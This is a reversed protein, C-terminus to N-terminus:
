EKYKTNVCIRDPTYWWQKVSHTLISPYIINIYFVHIIYLTCSQASYRRLVMYSYINFVWHQNPLENKNNKIGKCLFLSHGVHLFFSIDFRENRGSGLKSARIAFTLTWKHRGIYTTNKWHMSSTDDNDWLLDNYM